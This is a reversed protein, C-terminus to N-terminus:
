RRAYPGRIQLYKGYSRGIADNQVTWDYDSACLAEIVDEAANREITLRTAVDALRDIEADKGRLISNQGEM